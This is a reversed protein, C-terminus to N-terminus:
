LGLVLKLLGMRVAVGYSVQEFYKCRPDVDIEPHIEDVRPLPNLLIAEKKAENLLKKDFIFSKKLREYTSRDAFREEQIRNTSIVDLESIVDLVSEAEMLEIKRSQCLRIIEEPMALEPPSVLILKVKFQSFLKAESHFVRSNKLDGILGIKLGDLGGKERFITYVDLLGQTPHDGPGDGANIVPVTSGKALEAVMGAKSHRMAIVDAFRSIVQGTDWLSEGKKISSTMLMDHNTIVQGGLRIMATEFSFRTRTSPEFFLTALIKGNMLDTRQGKKAFQEMSKATEILQDVAKRDFQETTLVHQGKFDM